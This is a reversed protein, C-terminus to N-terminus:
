FYLYSYNSLDVEVEGIHQTQNIVHNIIPNPFIRRLLDESFVKGELKDSLFSALAAKFSKQKQDLEQIEIEIEDNKDKLIQIQEELNGM